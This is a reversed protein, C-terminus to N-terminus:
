SALPGCLDSLIGGAVLSYKNKSPESTFSDRLETPLSSKSEGCDGGTWGDDCRNLSKFFTIKLLLFEIMHKLKIMDDDWKSAVHPSNQSPGQLKSGRHSSSSSVQVPVGEGFKWVMGVGM